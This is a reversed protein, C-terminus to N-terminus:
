REQRLRELAREVLADVEASSATFHNAIMSFVLKDGSATDLYGSLSRVNSITGTKAQVHRALETDRMRSALTGDRGGVPLTAVFPGRHEESTWMRKLIAVIADATVYNYRSLGSGDYVVVADTPIGWGELTERVARRGASESGTGSAVRGMTKLLTEAYFNQSAKMLYGAITELPPSLHRIVVQRGSESVPTDLDDVDWAGGGVTLGHAKFTDALSEVFFSTPNEVTTTRVVEDGGAPILGRAVLQRSGLERAVSLTARSGAPGTTVEASLEFGHGPPTVLVLGPEGESTGPRARIVAVNENYSLAGSPAAYGATLYDWAWGGGRGEDEFADDDGILRGDIRTIGADRLATVWSSFLPSALEDASGISPDGGGVVILDGHLVGNEIPGAAEVRTEFQFGWGLREAAAALTVLKMNSAPVVHRESDRAYIVEGTSLSEVRVGVLARAFVPDSFIADLAARDTDSPAQAAGAASLGLGGALALALLRVRQRM